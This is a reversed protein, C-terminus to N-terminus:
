EDCYCHRQQKGISDSILIDEGVVRPDIPMTGFAKFGFIGEHIVVMDCFVKNFLSSVDYPIIKQLIHSKM